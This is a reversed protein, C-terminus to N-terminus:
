SDFVSTGTLQSRAFMEREDRLTQAAVRLPEKLIYKECLGACHPSTNVPFYAYSMESGADWGDLYSVRCAAERLFAADEGRLVHESGDGRAKRKPYLDGDVLIGSPTVFKYQNDTSIM